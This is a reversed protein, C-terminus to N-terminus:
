GGGNTQFTSFSDLPFEQISALKVQYSRLCRRRGSFASRTLFRGEAVMIIASKSRDGAFDGTISLGSILFSSAQRAQQKQSL